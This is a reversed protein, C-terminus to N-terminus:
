ADTWRRTNLIENTVRRLEVECTSAEKSRRLNRLRAAERLLVLRRAQLLVLGDSSPRPATIRAPSSIDGSEMRCCQDHDRCDTALHRMPVAAHFADAIKEPWRM